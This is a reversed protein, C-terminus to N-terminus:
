GSLFSALSQWWSNQSRARTRMRQHMAHPSTSRFAPRLSKGCARTMSRKTIFRSVSKSQTASWPMRQMCAALGNAVQTDTAVLVQLGETSLHCSVTNPHALIAQLTASSVGDDDIAFTYLVTAGSKTAAGKRVIEGGPIGDAANIVSAVYSAAEKTEIVITRGVVRFTAQKGHRQLIACAKRTDVDHYGDYRVAGAALHTVYVENDRRTRM